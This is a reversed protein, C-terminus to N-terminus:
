SSSNGKAVAGEIASNDTFIFLIAHYLLGKIAAERIAEFCNSFERLNSSRELLASVLWVGIRILLEREDKGQLMSRLGGGSADVLGYIIETVVYYRIPFPAPINYQFIAELMEFDDFLRDVALVYKPPSDV